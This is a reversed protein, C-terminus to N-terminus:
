IEKRIDPPPESWIYRKINRSFGYQKWMVETYVEEVILKTDEHLQIDMHNKEFWEWEMMKPWKGEYARGAGMWDAFMERVAWEPM